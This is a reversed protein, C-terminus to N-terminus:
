RAEGQMVRGVFGETTLVIDAVKDNCFSRLSYGFLALIGYRCM